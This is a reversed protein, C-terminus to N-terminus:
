FNWIGMLLQIENSYLAQTYTDYTAMELTLRADM